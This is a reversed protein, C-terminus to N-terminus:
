KGRGSLYESKLFATYHEYFDAQNITYAAAACKQKDATTWARASWGLLTGFLLFLILLALAVFTDEQQRNM